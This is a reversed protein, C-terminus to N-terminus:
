FQVILQQHDQSTFGVCLVLANNGFALDSNLPQLLYNSTSFNSYAVLDAGTAVASKTITGYSHLGNENVSRDEDVETVIVDDWGVGYNHTGSIIGLSIYTTTGTATFTRQEFRPTNSSSSNFTRATLESGNISTGVRFYVSITM